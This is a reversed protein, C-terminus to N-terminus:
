VPGSLIQDTQLLLSAPFLKYSFMENAFTLTASKHTIRLSVDMLKPNFIVYSFDLCSELMCMISNCLNSINLLGVINKAAFDDFLTDDKQRLLRGLVKLQASTTINVMCLPAQGTSSLPSQVLVLLGQDRSFRAIPLPSPPLSLATLSTPSPLFSLPLSHEDCLTGRNHAHGTSNSECGSIWGRFKFLLSVLHSLLSKNSSERGSERRGARGRERECCIIEGRRGGNTLTHPSTQTKSHFLLLLHLIEGLSLSLLPSSFYLFYSSSSLFHSLFALSLGRKEQEGRGGGGVLKM